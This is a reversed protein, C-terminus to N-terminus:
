EEDFFFDHIKIIDGRGIQVLDSTEKLFIGLSRENYLLKMKSSYDTVVYMDGTLKFFPIVLKSKVKVGKNVVKGEKLTAELNVEDSEGSSVKVYAVMMNLWESDDILYWSVKEFDIGYESIWGSSTFGFLVQKKGNLEPKDEPTFEQIKFTIVSVASMDKLKKGNFDLTKLSFSTLEPRNTLIWQTATLEAKEKMQEVAAVGAGIALLGGAIGAIAEGKNQAYSQKPIITIILILILLSKKM